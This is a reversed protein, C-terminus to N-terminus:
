GCVRNRGSNKAEYLRQDTLRILETADAVDASLTAAGVSVTVEIDVEDFRFRHKEVLKRVKEALQKASAGDIEPLLVAFEEGGFRAFVDERRIRPRIISALNKLVHDGALHGFTDNIKKFHDIDFLIMSLLRGYRQCRSMERELAELFYRRNHIQTLGDVTTLRYIEEHYLTEVDGGGLFKFITRGVKIQDGNRLVYEEVLEDNVYTGNTSGLDHVSAHDGNNLFKCHSRSISEEDIQIDARSSRGVVTQPRDLSFKRGLDDGYIVVLAAERASPKDAVRSVVTVATKSTKSM